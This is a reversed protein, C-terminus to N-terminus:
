NPLMTEKWQRYFYKDILLSNKKKKKSKNHSIEFIYFFYHHRDDRTNTLIRQFVSGIVCIHSKIYSVTYNIYGIIYLNM